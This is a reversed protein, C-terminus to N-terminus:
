EDTYEINLSECIMRRSRESLDRTTCRPISATDIVGCVKFLLRRSSKGRAGDKGVSVVVVPAGSRQAIKFAGPKFPLLSNEERNRTGEPYIGVSCDGSSLYQSATMITELARRNDERDISLFMCKHLINGVIPIKFNEPKSIFIMKCRRLAYLAIMPDFASSHNGVLLFPRDKPIKELGEARYRVGCFSLLFPLAQILFFRSLPDIRTQKKRQDAFLSCVAASVIFVIFFAAFFAAGFVAFMVASRLGRYSLFSCLLASLVPALLVFIYFLM